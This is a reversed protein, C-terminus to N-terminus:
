QVTEGETSEAVESVEPEGYEPIHFNLPMKANERAKDVGSEAFIYSVVSVLSTIVGAVEAYENGDIGFATAVGVIVGIIAAWLKRSSLKQAWNIKNEM